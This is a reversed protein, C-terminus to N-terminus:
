KIQRGVAAVVESPLFHAKILFEAAGLSKAKKVDARSSLNTLIVVPIDRSVQDTKLSNLIFWGDPTPLDLDLLIVDPKIQKIKKLCSPGDTTVVVSWGASGFKNQYLRNLFIDAEVIVISHQKAM